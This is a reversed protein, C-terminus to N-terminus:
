RSLATASEPPMGILQDPAGCVPPQPRRQHRTVAIVAASPMAIAVAIPAARARRSPGRPRRRSPRAAVCGFNTAHWHAGHMEHKSHAEDRRDRGPERDARVVRVRPPPRGGREERHHQGIEAHVDEGIEIRNGRFRNKERAMLSRAACARMGRTLQMATSANM